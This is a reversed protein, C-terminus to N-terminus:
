IDCQVPFIYQICSNNYVIGYRLILTNTCLLNRLLLRHTHQKLLAVICKHQM